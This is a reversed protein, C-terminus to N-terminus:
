ARKRLGFWAGVAGLAALLGLAVQAGTQEPNSPPEPPSDKAPTNQPEVAQSVQPQPQTGQASEYAALAQEAYQLRSEYHPIGSRLFAREFAVVKDELGVAAQLVPIAKKESGKLEVFLWGYNAKDSAPDLQSRACYAEFQVRRPGTWQCWGWGGRSGAVTPKIEQLTEFGNCEHGINGLVAAASEVSLAFDSMLLGMIQPAKDTFLSM